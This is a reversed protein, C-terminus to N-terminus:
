LCFTGHHRFSQVCVRFRWRSKGFDEDEASAYLRAMYEVTYIFVSGYEIYFFWPVLVGGAFHRISESTDSLFAFMNIFIVTLIFYAYYRGGATDGVFFAHLQARAGQEDAMKNRCKRCFMEDLYRPARKAEEQQEEEGRWNVLTEVINQRQVGTVRKALMATFEAMDIEGDGDVDAEKIMREIRQKSLVVDQGLKEFVAHLEDASIKGSNDKDYERFLKKYEEEAKARAKNERDELIKEQFGQQIVGLPIGMLGAALVIMFFHFVRSLNCYQFLPYDGTMHVFVYWLSAPVSIFREAMTLEDVMVNNNMETYHLIFAFLVTCVLAVWITMLLIFKKARFVDDLLGVVPAYEESKLIRVLRFVRLMTTPIIQVNPLALDVYFPVIALLDIISFFSFIHRIRPFSSDALAPDSPAAYLRFLYEITFIVVSVLEVWFYAKEFWPFQAVIAPDSDIIFCFVNLGIVFFIFAEFRGGWPTLGNFFQFLQTRTSDDYQIVEEEKGERNAVVAKAAEYGQQDVEKYPRNCQPCNLHEFEELLKDEDEQQEEMLEEFGGSLIGVPVGFVGAALVAMFVGVFQGKVSYAGTPFEGSLNLLVLWLSKPVSVFEDQVELGAYRETFYMLSALFVWMVLVVFGTVFFLDKNSAFVKYLMSFAGVYADAKLLRLLRLARVFTTPFVSRGPGLHDIYWPAIAVLDVLAFFSYFYKFRGQDWWEVDDNEQFREDEVCAYLRLLYEITFIIVSVAEFIDAFQSSGYGPITQIAFGIVNAFILAFIFIEFVRGVTTKASLFWYLKRRFSAVSEEQKRQLEACSV